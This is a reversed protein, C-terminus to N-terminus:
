PRQRAPHNFQAPAPTGRFGASQAIVAGPGGAARVRAAQDEQIRQDLEAPNGVIQRLTAAFGANVAAAAPAAALNHLEDPDRDLDFLRPPYGEYHVYKLNRRRLMFAASPSSTAHYEAFVVRDPDPAALGRFLSRGPVDADQDLPVGVGELVTPFCDVLSVPDAVTRGAPVGPGALLLPVKVAGELLSCKGWQGQAGLTEGHDSTYLVRTTENLGAAALARLVRGIQEDLFTVLGYYAATARQITAAPLPREPMDLRRKLDLVPHAPWAAPHWAPPLPMAAPDFRAFHPPPAVLPPHPCVFSVFLVWPQQRLAAARLWAVAADAIARDYATYSSEGPGAELVDRGRNPLPPMAGRLLGIRNGTGGAVHLPLRQDPFGTPDEPSRFHLKGITTVPRGHDTLRHGWSPAEAGTYPRANDWTGLDHVYRGTALSARSPVCIPSACYANAFRTGRAALQDLHPTHALANGAAGLVNAAHQDSLIFLLNRPTTM